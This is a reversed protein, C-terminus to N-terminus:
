IEPTFISLSAKFGLSSLHDAVVSHSVLDLLDLSRRNEKGGALRLWADDRPAATGDGGGVASLPQGTAAATNLQQVFQARLKAKVEDLAGTQRFQDGLRQKLVALEMVERVTKFNQVNYSATLNLPATRCQGRGMM